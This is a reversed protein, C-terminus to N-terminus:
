VSARSFLPSTTKAPEAAAAPSIGGRRKKCIAAPEEKPRPTASVPAAKAQPEFVSPVQSTGGKGRVVVCNIWSAAPHDCAAPKVADPSSKTHPAPAASHGLGSVSTLGPSSNPHGDSSTTLAAHLDVDEEDLAVPSPREVKDELGAAEVAFLGSCPTDFDKDVVEAGATILGSRFTEFDEELAAAEVTFLGSRFNELDEELVVAEAILLGSRIVEFDDELESAGPNVRPIYPPEELGAGAEPLAASDLGTFCIRPSTSRIKLFAGGPCKDRSLIPLRRGNSAFHYM